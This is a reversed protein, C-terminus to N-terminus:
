PFTICPTYPQNGLTSCNRTLGYFKNPGFSLEKEINDEGGGKANKMALLGASFHSTAADGKNQIPLYYFHMAYHYWAIDFSSGAPFNDADQTLRRLPTKYLVDVLTNNSGDDNGWPALSVDVFKYRTERSMNDLVALVTGNMDSITIDSLRADSFCVISHIVPGFFNVTQKTAADMTVSESIRLANPTQGTVVVVVGEATAMTISLPGVITLDTCVASEGMDRWNNWKYSWDHRVYRPASMSHLQFPVESTTKRMGRLEGMYSPLSVIKDSPVLITNEWYIKNCELKGYMELAATNLLEVLTQRQAVPDLGTDTAVRQLVDYLM